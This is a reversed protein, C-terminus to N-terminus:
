KCNPVTFNVFTQQDAQGYRVIKEVSFTTGVTSTKTIFKTCPQSAEGAPMYYACESTSVVRSVEVNHMGYASCVTENEVFEGRRAVEGAKLTRKVLGIEGQSSYAVRVTQTASCYQVPALSRFTTATACANGVSLGNVSPFNWQVEGHALAFSAVLTVVASALLAKM